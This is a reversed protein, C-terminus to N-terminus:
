CGSATADHRRPASLVGCRQQATPINAVSHKSIRVKHFDYKNLQRVFSAFNSHKFTRPLINVTFENVDRIVFFDGGPGWCIIDSLSDDGLISYLALSVVLFSYYHLHHLCSLAVPPVWKYLKRVFDSATSVGEEKETKEKPPQHESPPPLLLPNTPDEPEVKLTIKPHQFAAPKHLDSSSSPWSQIPSTPRLLPLQPSGVPFSPQFPTTPQYFPPSQTASATQIPMIVEDLLPHGFDCRSSSLSPSPSSSQADTAPRLSRKEAVFEESTDM